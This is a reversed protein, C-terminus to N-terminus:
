GTLSKYELISDASEAIPQHREQQSMIPAILKPKRRQLAFQRL